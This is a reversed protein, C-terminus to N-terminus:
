PGPDTLGRLESAPQDAAEAAPVDPVADPAAQIGLLLGRPDSVPPPAVPESVTAPPTTIADIAGRRRAAERRVRTEGRRGADSIVRACMAQSTSWRAECQGRVTREGELSAQLGRAVDRAQDREVTRQAVVQRASDLDRQLGGVRAKAAWGSGWGWIALGSVAVLATTTLLRGFRDDHSALELREDPRLDRIAAVDRLTNRRSWISWLTLPWRLASLLSLM